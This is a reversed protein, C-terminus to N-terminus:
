VVREFKNEAVDGIYLGVRNEHCQEVLVKRVADDFSFGQEVLRDEQENMGKAYASRGASEFSSSEKTRVMAYLTDQGIVLRTQDAEGIPFIMKSFDQASPPNGSPHTHSSCLVKKGREIEVWERKAFCKNLLAANSYNAPVLIFEKDPHDSLPVHKRMAQYIGVIMMDTNDGFSSLDWITVRVSDESGRNLERLTLGNNANVYLVGSLEKGSEKSWKALSSLVYKIEDSFSIEKPLEGISREEMFLDEANTSKEPPKNVATDEPGLGRDEASPGFEGSM